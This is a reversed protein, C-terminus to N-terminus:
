FLVYYLRYLSVVLMVLAVASVALTVSILVMRAGKSRKEIVVTEEKPLLEEEPVEAMTDKVFEVASLLNRDNENIHPKFKAFKVLDPTSM